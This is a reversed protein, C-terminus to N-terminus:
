FNVRSPDMGPKPVWKAGNPKSNSRAQHSCCVWWHGKAGNLEKGGGEGTDSSGWPGRVPGEFDPLRMEAVDKEAGQRSGLNTTSLYQLIRRSASHRKTQQDIPQHSWDGTQQMTIESGDGLRAHLLNDHRAPNYKGIM